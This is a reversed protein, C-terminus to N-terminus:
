IVVVNANKKQDLIWQAERRGSMWAGHVCGAGEEITHEGAFRINLEELGNKTAGSLLNILTDPDDGPFAASYAGRIYPNITWKSTIVNIPSEVKHGDLRLKSLAPKLYDWAKEPNKELYETIPHPTLICLSGGKITSSHLRHIGAINLVDLGLTWLKPLCETTGYEQSVDTDPLLFIQDVTDDWWVSPFELIVKGLSGVHMKSLANTIDCPLSPSWEISNESGVPLKLISLPVAIVLFECRISSGNSCEVMISYDDFIGYTIKKVAHGLTILNEPIRSILKNLIHDYGQKNYVDRGSHHFPCDKASISDWTKGYWLELMRSLRPLLNIQEQTLIMKYKQIYKQIMNKVSDDNDKLDDYNLNVFDQFDQFIRYVKNKSLNVRGESESSYYLVPSDDFYLSEESSFDKGNILENFLENLLCDHFWAAGIDYHLGLKSSTRDTVIRGGLYDQAEVLVVDEPSFTSNEGNVLTDVANLGAIGGGIVCVKVFKRLSCEINM